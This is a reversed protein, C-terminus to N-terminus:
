GVALVLLIWLEGIQQLAGLFDGTVGGVRRVFLRGAGMGLGGLGALVGAAQLWSVAGLAGAGVLVAAATLGAGLAQTAGARQLDRSRARTPDTAYPLAAMLAVPLARSVSQGVVLGWVLGGGLDAWLTVRAGVVIVLALVGYAGVRSDKLITLVSAADYGGGLADATDALGDEHLGGTLWASVGACLWAIAMPSLHDALAWPVTALGAGLLLGVTPFWATAWRGDEPRYAFPPLPIRTLFVIAARFGRLCAIM